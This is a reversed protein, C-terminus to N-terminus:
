IIKYYQWIPWLLSHSKWISCCTIGSVERENNLKDQVNSMKRSMLMLRCVEIHDWVSYDIGKGKTKSAM